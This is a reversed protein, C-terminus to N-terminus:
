DGLRYEKGVFYGDYEVVTLTINQKEFIEVRDALLNLASTCGFRFAVLYCKDIDNDYGWVYWGVFQERVKETTSGNQKKM